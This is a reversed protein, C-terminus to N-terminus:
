LSHRKEPQSFFVSLLVTQYFIKTALTELPLGRTAFSKKYGGKTKWGIQPHLLRPKDTHQQYHINTHEVLLHSSKTLFMM